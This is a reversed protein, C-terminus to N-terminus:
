ALTGDDSTTLSPPLKVDGGIAERLRAQWDRGRLLAFKEITAPKLFLKVVNWAVYFVPNIPAIFVRGLLGPYHDQVTPLVALALGPDQNRLGSSSRDVVLNFQGGPGENLGYRLVAAEAAHIVFRLWESQEIEGPLHRDAYFVATPRGFMDRGELWEVEELASLTTPPSSANSSAKCAAFFSGISYREDGLLAQVGEQVRWCATGGLRTAVAAVLGDIEDERDRGGGSGGNGKICARTYRLVDCDSLAHIWESDFSGEPQETCWTGLRRWVARVQNTATTQPPPKHCHPRAMALPHWTSPLGSVLRLEFESAPQNAFSLHGSRECIVHEAPQSGENALSEIPLRVRGSQKLLRDGADYWSEVTAREVRATQPQASSPSSEAGRFMGKAGKQVPTPSRRFVGKIRTQIGEPTRRFARKILARAKDRKRMRPM